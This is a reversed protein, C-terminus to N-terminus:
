RPRARRPKLKPRGEAAVLKPPALQAKEVKELCLLTDVYLTFQNLYGPSIDRMLALSRLVLKHSNIPGANKPAQTLAQAVRKDVSIKSWTERFFRAAKLEPRLGTNPQFGRDFGAGAPAAPQQALQRVLDALPTGARSSKLATIAQKIGKLDGVAGLQQLNAAAEPSLRSAQEIAVRADSQAQELRAQFVALMQALRKHLVEKVADSQGNVRGALLHLHHLQVADFQAGGAQHLAALLASTDLAQALPLAQDARRSEESM